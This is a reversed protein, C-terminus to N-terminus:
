VKKKVKMQEKSFDLSYKRLIDQLEEKVIEWIQQKEPEPFAHCKIDLTYFIYKLHNRHGM